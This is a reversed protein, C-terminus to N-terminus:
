VNTLASFLEGAGHTTDNTGFYNNPNTGNLFHRALLRGWVDTMTIPFGAALKGTTETIAELLFPLNAATSNYPELLDLEANWGGWQTPDSPGGPPGFALNEITPFNAQYLSTLLWSGGSLGAFYTASQLLGGVGSSVSTQNRGDLANLVGAGFIAARYGGGSTAIGLNPLTGNNVIQSVYSPLQVGKNQVNSLYAKWAAPLVQSRRNSTYSKEDSNLNQSGPAGASRLLEFGSPCEGGVPAYSQSINVQALTAPTFSSVLALAALALSLSPAM